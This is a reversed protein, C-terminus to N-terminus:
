GEKHTFVVVKLYTAGTIGSVSIKIKEVLGDFIPPTYSGDPVSIDIANITSNELPSLFINGMPSSSISISGASPTVPITLEEDSFFEFYVENLDSFSSIDKQTFFDDDSSVPLAIEGATTRFFIRSSM